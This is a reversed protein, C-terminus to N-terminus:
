GNKDEIYCKNISNQATVIYFHEDDYFQSLVSISKKYYETAQSYNKISYYVNGLTNYRIGVKPHMEGFLHRDVELAKEAYILASSHQELLDLISSINNYCSATDPHFEGYMNEFGLCAKKFYKLALNYDKLSYYIAGFSNNIANKEYVLINENKDIIYEAKKFYELAKNPENLVRCAEGVNNYYASLEYSDLSEKERITIANKFNVIADGLNDLRYYILGISNYYRDLSIESQSVTQCLSIGSNFYELAKKYYGLIYSMDGVRFIIKHSNPSCKVALDYYHLADRFELKLEKVIGLQYFDEAVKETREAAAEKILREAKNYDKENVAILAQKKKEEEEIEKSLSQQLEVVIKKNQKSVEESNLLQVRLNDCEETLQQIQQQLQSNNNHSDVKTTLDILKKEINQLDSITGTVRPKSADNARLRELILDVVEQPTRNNIAVYGDISLFGPVTTNDFRFPMIEDDRKHKIMDRIARMELGCWEKNAYDECLFPIILESHDKYLNMLHIDLNPKALESVHYNDYFVKSKSFELALLDAVKEIFERKEGPFSLAVKFRREVNM